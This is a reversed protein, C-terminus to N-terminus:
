GALDRVVETAATEITEIASPSAQPGDERKLRSEIEIESKTALALSESTACLLNRVRKKQEESFDEEDVFDYNLTFITHLVLKVEYRRVFEDALSKKSLRNRLDLFPPFEENYYLQIRGNLSRVSLGVRSPDHPWGLTAWTTADRKLPIPRLVPIEAESFDKKRVKVKLTQTNGDGPEESPRENDTKIRTPPKEVVEVPVRHHISQGIAYDLQVQIFGKAGVKSHEPCLFHCRVRGGKMEGCGVYNVAYSVVKVKSNSPDDPTWYSPPADTEFVYSYRQGPYLTIAERQIRWRAFTPPDVAPIPPLETPTNRKKKAEAEIEEEVDTWKQVKKTLQDFNIGATKLYKRILSSFSDNKDDPRKIDAAALQINLEELRKDFGLRRVLEDLIMKKIPTEKAHERTSTFLEYKAQANLDNCDIQVIMFKGVAWLKAGTSGTVISRSEEAHTQGDLTMLITKEPDVWSRLVNNSSRGAPEIVWYTLKVKGLETRGVRGGFDWSPLTYFESARHLIRTFKEDNTTQETDAQEGRQTDRTDARNLTNQWARELANVSGRISRGYARFGPFTPFGQSHGAKLLYIQLWVPFIPQAISRMLLGYLSNEGVRSFLEAATYGIHRVLTGVPFEGVTVEPIKGNVTLYKYTPTKAQPDWHAEVFTFATSATGVKRSAIMTLDSYQYTSSAGQGHKGTLWRKTKKNGRNLSLITHPMEAATLGIGYDRADLVLDKHDNQDGIFGTVTVTSQALRRLNDDDLGFSLGDRQLNFWKAAAEYPSAPMDGKHDIAAKELNADGENTVREIFARGPYANLSMPGDNSDTDNFPVWSVAQKNAREFHMLRDRADRWSVYGPWPLAYAQKQPGIEGKPHPQSVTLEVNIAVSRFLDECSDVPKSVTPYNPEIARAVRVSQGAAGQRARLITM